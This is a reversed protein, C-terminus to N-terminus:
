GNGGKGIRQSRANNGSYFLLETKSGFECSVLGLSFISVCIAAMNRVISKYMGKRVDNSKNMIM